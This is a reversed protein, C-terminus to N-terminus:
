YIPNRKIEEDVYKKLDLFLLHSCNFFLSEFDFSDGALIISRCIELSDLNKDSMCEEYNVDSECALYYKEMSM